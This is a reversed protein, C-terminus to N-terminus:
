PQPALQIAGSAAGAGRHQAPVRWSPAAEGSPEPLEVAPMVEVPLAALRYGMGWENRLYVPDSPDDEIKNRLYSIYARLYQTDDVYEEGWVRSLLFRHPAVRGVRSALAELLGRETRTLRVVEGRKTVLQADQDIVLVGTRVVGRTDTPPAVRDYRRIAARVRATLESAAGGNSLFDDAGADLVRAAMEGDEDSATVIVPIDCAARLVRVFEVCDFGSVRYDLLVVDPQEGFVARLATAGSEVELVTFEDALIRRAEQRVLEDANVVLVVSM